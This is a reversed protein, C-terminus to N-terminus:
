TNRPKSVESWSLFRLCLTIRNTRRAQSYSVQKGTFTTRMKKRGEEDEAGEGDSSRKRKQKKENSNESPHETKIRKLGVVKHDM